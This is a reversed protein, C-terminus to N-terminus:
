HPAFRLLLLGSVSHRWYLEDDLVAIACLNDKGPDLVADDGNGTNLKRSIELTWGHGDHVGKGRVDAVSGSPERSTFANIVDGVYESPKPKVSYSATGEDMPRAIYVSGHGGLQYEHAGEGPTQGIIHRKDDM